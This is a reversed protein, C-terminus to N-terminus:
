RRLHVIRSGHDNYFLVNSLYYLPEFLKDFLVTSPFKQCRTVVQIKETNVHQFPHCLLRSGCSITLFTETFIDRYLFNLTQLAALLQVVHWFCNWAGTCSNLVEFSDLLTKVQIHLLLSIDAGVSAVVPFSTTSYTLPEQLSASGVPLNM